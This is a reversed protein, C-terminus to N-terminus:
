SNASLMSTMRSYLKCIGHWSILYEKLMTEVCKQTRYMWKAQHTCFLEAADAKHALTVIQIQSRLPGLDIKDAFPRRPHLIENWGRLLWMKMLQLSFRCGGLAKGSQVGRAQILRRWKLGCLIVTTDMRKPFLHCLFHLGYLLVILEIWSPLKWVFRVEEKTLLAM